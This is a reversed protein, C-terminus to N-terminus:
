WHDRNNSLGGKLVFGDGVWVFTPQTGSIYTHIYVYTYICNLCNYCIYIHVIYVIYLTSHWHLFSAFIGVYWEFLTQQFQAKKQKGVGWFICWRLFWCIGDDSISVLWECLQGGSTLWRKLRCAPHISIGTEFQKKVFFKPRDVGEFCATKFGLLFGSRRRYGVM